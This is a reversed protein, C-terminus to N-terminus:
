ALAARSRPREIIVTEVFAKEAQVEVGAVM